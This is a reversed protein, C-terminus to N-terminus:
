DKQLIVDADVTLFTYSGKGNGVTLTNNEVEGEFQNVLTGTKSDFTAVFNSQEPLTLTVDGSDAAIYMRQPQETLRITSEASATACTLDKINGRLKITGANSGVNVSDATVAINLLGTESYATLDKLQINNCIVSAGVTNVEIDAAIEYPVMIELQKKSNNPLTGDACYRIDLVGDQLRWRMQMEDAQKAAEYFLVTDGEYGKISVYGNLWDLQIASLSAANIEGEGATYSEANDYTYSLTGYVGLILLAVLVVAVVAGIIVRKRQSM